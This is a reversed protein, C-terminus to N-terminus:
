PLVKLEKPAEPAPNPVSSGSVPGIYSDSVVVNDIYYGTDFGSGEESSMYNSFIIRTFNSQTIRDTGQYVLTENIWIKVTDTTADMSFEVCLWENLHELLNYCGAPYSGVPWERDHDQISFFAYPQDAPVGGRGHGCTWPSTWPVGALLNVRLGTLALATNTFLLHYSPERTVPTNFNIFNSELYLYFRINIKTPYPTPLDRVIDCSDSYGAKRFNYFSKTGSYSKNSTVGTNAEYAYRCDSGLPSWWGNFLLSTSCNGSPALKCPWNAPPTGSDWDESIYVIAFATSHILIIITIGFLVLFLNNKNKIKKEKM